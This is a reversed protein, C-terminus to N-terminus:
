PFLWVLTLTHKQAEIAPFGLFSSTRNADNQWVIVKGVEDTSQWIEDGHRLIANIIVIVRRGERERTHGNALGTGL